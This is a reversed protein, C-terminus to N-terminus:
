SPKGWALNSAKWGREADMGGVINYSQDYGLQMALQAAEFSRGGSKCIFLITQEPKAKAQFEEAFHPNAEFDPALRWPILISEGGISSLDPQGADPLEQETRVDVLLTQHNQLMELAQTPTVQKVTESLPSGKASHLM